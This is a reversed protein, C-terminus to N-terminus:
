IRVLEYNTLCLRHAEQINSLCKSNYSLYGGHHKLYGLTVRNPFVPGPERTM